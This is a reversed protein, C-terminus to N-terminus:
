KRFYWAPMSINEVKKSYGPWVGSSKCQAYTDLDAMYEARGADEAEIDLEYFATLYPPKSEVCAFMFRFDKGYRMKCADIYFPVQVYYRRDRISKAFGEPSVDDGTKVDIILQKSVIVKDLKSRAPIAKHEHGDAHWLIVKEAEFDFQDYLKWVDSEKMSNRMNWATQMTEESICDKEANELREAKGEKTRGDFQLVHYRNSVETPELLMCHVLLGLLMAPTQKDDEKKNIDAWYHAPSKHILDLGSKSIRTHDSYYTEDKM